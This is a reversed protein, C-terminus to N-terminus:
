GHASGKNAQENNCQRAFFFFMTTITMTTITVITIIMTTITITMTTVNDAFNLM